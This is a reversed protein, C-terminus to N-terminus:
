QTSGTNEAALLSEAATAYSALMIRAVSEIAEDSPVFSPHHLGPSTGDALGTGAFIMLAPFVTGYYSFDDAGCSRLARGETFGSSELAQTVSAALVADNEMVPEGLELTVEATCGHATAIGQATARVLEHLTTRFQEDFTRLTGMLRVEGPIANHSSGGHISGITLVAPSMPDSRRSVLHQLAGVLAAAAVIPDRSLQPYAGHAARGTIVIDLEDAAANVPGAVASFTGDPLQPQLHVGFFARIDHRLLTDSVIFDAAGCPLTEERPQLVALLPVPAGLKVITRTAAVLAALHVDHGCLHAVDGTSSWPVDSEEAIPLADLEARIAIAPGEAAGIRAVLGQDIWEGTVGLAQEVLTTTDRENGSVRPDAHIRHRLEAADALELELLRDAEALFRERGAWTSSGGTHGTTDRTTM